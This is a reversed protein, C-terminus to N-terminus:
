TNGRRTKLHEKLLKAKCKQCILGQVKQMMKAAIMMNKAKAFVGQKKRMEKMMDISLAEVALKCDPCLFKLYPAGMNKFANLKDADEKEMTM